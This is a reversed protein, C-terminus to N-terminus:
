ICWAQADILAGAKSKHFKANDFSCSRDTENGAKHCIFREACPMVKIFDVCWLARDGTRHEILEDAMVVMNAIEDKGQGL